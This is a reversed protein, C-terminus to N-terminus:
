KSELFKKGHGFTTNVPVGKACLPCDAAEYKDLTLASLSVLPANETIDTAQVNGRNCIAGVVTVTGGAETVCTAVTKASGGSNLIDEVILCKKGTIYADYGRTIKFTDKGDVKDGTKEIYVSAITKGKFHSLYKAVINGLVVSGLAPAVVTDIDYERLLDALMRGIEDIAIPDLTVKDKAIYVSGHQGAQYVFHDGQLIAQSKNLISFTDVQYRAPRVELWTIRPKALAQVAEENMAKVVTLAAEAFNEGSSAYIVNRSANILLGAGDTNAGYTVTSEMTAGQAGVGPSLIIGDTGIAYRVQMLHDPHTAGVVVGCNSNKGWKMVNRAMHLYVPLGEAVLDQIEASGKNSTKALVIILKDKFEEAFFPENADEGFYGSITIADFYKLYVTYGINTNGIDGRKVDGILFLDPYTEAIYQATRKFVALGKEEYLEYFAINIKFGAVHGHVSDIIAKNFQFWVEDRDPYTGMWLFAPIKGPDTDLGVVIFFMKHWMNILKQLYKKM